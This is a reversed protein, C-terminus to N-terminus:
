SGVLRLEKIYGFRKILNERKTKITCTCYLLTQHPEINSPSGTFLIGDLRSLILEAPCRGLAPIVLPWAKTANAIALLYKEGVINFPHLGLDQNCATVGIVALGAESM